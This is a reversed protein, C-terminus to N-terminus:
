RAAGPRRATAQRDDRSEKKIGVLCTLLSGVVLFAVGTGCLYLRVQYLDTGLLGMLFLLTGCCAVTVIQSHGNSM